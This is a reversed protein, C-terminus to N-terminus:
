LARQHLLVSYASLDVARVQVSPEEIGQNIVTKVSGFTLPQTSNLLQSLADSVAVESEKAALHLVRLSQKDAAPSSSHVRQLEDYATPSTHSPFLEARYQCRGYDRPKRVLM